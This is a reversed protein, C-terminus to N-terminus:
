LVLEPMLELEGIVATSVKAEVAMGAKTNDTSTVTFEKATDDWYLVDGIVWPETTAHAKALYEIRGAYAFVNVADADASNIAIMAHGNILYVTDKVTAATHALKVTKVSSLGGRIKNAM